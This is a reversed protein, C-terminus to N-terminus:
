DLYASEQKFKVRKPTIIVLECFDKSFRLFSSAFDFITSIIRVVKSAYTASPFDLFPPKLPTSFINKFLHQC